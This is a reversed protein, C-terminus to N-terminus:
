ATDTLKTEVSSRDFNRRRADDLRAVTGRAAMITNRPMYTELIRKISALKHGSTASIAQDDMGLEGLRVIATRRFDRFQLDALELRAPHIRGARDTFGAVAHAKVEMFRRIFHRQQWPLGSQDNTLITTVVVGERNANTAIAAEIRNRLAGVIPLGVWVKTKGQRLSLGWVAGDTGALAATLDRDRLVIPRWQASTLAILDSERQGTWEALEVALAMGPMALDHAAAIFAAIDDLEWIQHRPAPMGLEFDEAVNRDLLEHKVAWSLLTRLVRLTGHATTHGVGGKAKPRMMADRFDRVHKRTLAVAAIDGFIADIRNLASNYTSRTTAEFRDRGGDDKSELWDRRYRAIFSGVTARRVFSAVARPKAGGTRWRDVADNRVRAALMAAELEVGLSLSKWNARRQAPSPIWYYRLVGATTTRAVMGPIAVKM